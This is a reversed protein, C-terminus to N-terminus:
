KPAAEPTKGSEHRERMKEHMKQRAAKREEATLVNDGNTDMKTFMEDARKAHEARTVDGQYKGHHNAEPGPVSEALAVTSALTLLAGLIMKTTKM